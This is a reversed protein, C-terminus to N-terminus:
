WTDPVILKQGPMLDGGGLENVERLTRVMERIDRVGAQQQHAEAISWLSDGYAVVYEQGEPREGKAAGDEAGLALLLGGYLLIGMGLAVKQANWNIIQKDMQVTGEVYLVSTRM